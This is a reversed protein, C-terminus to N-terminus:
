MLLFIEVVLQEFWCQFKKVLLHLLLHHLIILLFPFWVNAFGFAVIEIETMQKLAFFSWCQAIPEIRHPLIVFM